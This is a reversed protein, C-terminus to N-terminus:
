LHVGGVSGGIGSRVELFLTISLEQQLYHFVITRHYTLVYFSNPIM